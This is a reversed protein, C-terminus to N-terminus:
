FYDMWPDRLCIGLKNMKVYETNADKCPQCKGGGEGDTCKMYKSRTGHEAPKQNIGGNTPLGGRKSRRYESMYDSHARKCFECRCGYAYGTQTSHPFDEADTSKDKRPM